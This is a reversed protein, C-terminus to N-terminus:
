PSASPSSSPSPTVSPDTGHDDDHNAPKAGPMPSSAAVGVFRATPAAPTSVDISALPTPQGRAYSLIATLAQSKADLENARGFTVPVGSALDLTVTGDTSVEITEVQTRLATTLAGAVKAGARLVEQDVPEAEISEEESHEGAVAVASGGAPADGAVTFSEAALIEPYATAVPARGLVTGDEAVLSRGAPTTARAVPLREVVEIRVTTPLDAIVTARM